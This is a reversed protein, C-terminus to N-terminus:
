LVSYYWFKGERERTALKLNFLESLRNSMATVGVQSSVKECVEEAHARKLKRLAMLTEALAHSIEHSGKGGCKACKIKPIRTSM